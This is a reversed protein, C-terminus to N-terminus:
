EPLHMTPRKFLLRQVCHAQQKLIESTRNGKIGLLKRVQSTQTLGSRHTQLFWSGLLFASSSFLPFSPTLRLNVLSSSFSSRTQVGGKYEKRLLSNRKLSLSVRKGKSVGVAPLILRIGQLSSPYVLFTSQMTQDTSKQSKNQYYLTMKSLDTSPYIILGSSLQMNVTACCM